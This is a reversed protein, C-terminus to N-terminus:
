RYERSRDRKGRRAPVDSQGSFLRRRMAQWEGSYQVQGESELLERLRRLESTTGNLDAALAERESVLADIMESYDALWEHADTLRFGLESCEDCVADFADCVLEHERWALLAAVFGVALLGM